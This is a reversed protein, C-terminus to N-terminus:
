RRTKKGGIGGLLVILMFAIIALILVGGFGGAFESGKRGIHLLTAGLFVAGIIVGISIGIAIIVYALIPLPNCLFQASMTLRIMQVGMGEQGGTWYYEIKAMGYVLHLGEEAEVKEQLNELCQQEIKMWDQPPFITYFKDDIWTAEYYSNEELEVDEAIPIEFQRNVKTGIEYM